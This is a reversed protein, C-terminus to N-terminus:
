EEEEVDMYDMYFTEIGTEEDIEYVTPLDSINAKAYKIAEAEDEFWEDMNQGDIDFRVVFKYEVEKENLKM